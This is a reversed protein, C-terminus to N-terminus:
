ARDEGFMRALKENQKEVNRERAERVREWFEGPPLGRIYDAVIRDREEQPMHKIQEQILEEGTVEHLRVREPNSASWAEVISKLHAEAAEEGELPEGTFTQWTGDTKQTEIHFYKVM